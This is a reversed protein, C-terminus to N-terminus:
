LSHNWEILKEILLTNEFESLSILRIYETNNNLINTANRILIGHVLLFDKLDSSRGKLLKVLFFPTDSPLCEFLGIANIKKQFEASDALWKTLNLETTNNQLIYKAAEIALTNVAWPISYTNVKHIIQEPATIYGIRLGPISYRKTFSHILIINSLQSVEKTTIAKQSCFDAYSQDIIFITQTHKQFLTRLYNADIHYGTPNNPNCIWVLNPEFKAMSKEINRAECKRIKHKNLLCAKEYESFTPTIILSKQGQYAQAINYLSEISGNFLVLQNKDINHKQALMEKLSEAEFEPYRRITPLKSALHKYLASNDAGYWINSSFNAKLEGQVDDGHDNKM